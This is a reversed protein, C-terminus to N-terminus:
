KVTFSVSDSENESIAELIYNGEKLKWECSFPEKVNGLIKGNLKWTVSDLNGLCVLHFVIKQHEEEVTKDIVFIDGDSPFTINM